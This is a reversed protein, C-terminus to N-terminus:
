GPALERLQDLLVESVEFTSIAAEAGAELMDDIWPPQPHDLLGIVRVQSWRARIMRTATPGDLDPLSYDMVVVDPQVRQVLEIVEFGDGAEGIVQLDPEDNLLTALAQRMLVHADALLIRRKSSAAAFAPRQGPMGHAVASAANPSPSLSAGPTAVPFPSSTDDGEALPVRLAICTGRRGTGSAMILTGGLWSLRECIALLGLGAETDLPGFGCGDDTLRLVVQAGQAHHEIGLTLTVRQASAHKVVNVLLERVSEFLLIRTNECAFRLEQELQLDITVDERSQISQVLWALAAGFRGQHLLPPTLEATLTRGTTIAQDILSRARAVTERALGELETLTELQFKVAVMDQQLHDHLQRSIRLRARQETLTQQVSLRALQEARTRM